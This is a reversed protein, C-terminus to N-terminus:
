RHHSLSAQLASQLLAAPCRETHRGLAEYPSARLSRLGMGARREETNQIAIGKPQSTIRSEQKQEGGRTPKMLLMAKHTHAKIELVWPSPHSGTAVREKQEVGFRQGSMHCVKGEPLEEFGGTARTVHGRDPWADPGVFSPRETEASMKLAPAYSSELVATIIDFLCPGESSTTVGPLCLFREPCFQWKVDMIELPTISCFLFPDTFM